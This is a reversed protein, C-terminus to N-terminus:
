CPQHLSEEVHRRHQDTRAILWHQLTEVETRLQMDLREDRLNVGGTGTVVAESTDLVLAQLRFDGQNLAAETIFCEVQARQPMGLASLLANGFELGSLDVLVASLDGGVMALKLGGHGNDLMQALSKGIADITGSGSIAGAGQFAHTAAMLRSVDVRQFEIDAKAHTGGDQPTLEVSTAIRGKGVGFSLPHLSVQGDKIDLRVDLNDLPVSRGAFYAWVDAQATLHPVRALPEGTWDPPNGITVDDATAQLIRGPSIHLHAITVPRGFAASARSAVLPILLDGGWIVVLAVVSLLVIGLPLLWVIARRGPTM